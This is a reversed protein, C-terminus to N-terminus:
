LQESLKRILEGQAAAKRKLQNKKEVISAKAANKKEPEIPEEKPLKESTDNDKSTAARIEM